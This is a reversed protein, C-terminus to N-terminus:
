SASHLWPPRQWASRLSILRHTVGSSRPQVALWGGLLPAFLPSHESLDKMVVSPPICDGPWILRSNNEGEGWHQSKFWCARSGPFCQMSDSPARPHLWLSGCTCQLELNRPGSWSLSCCMLLHAQCSRLHFVLLLRAKQDSKGSAPRCAMIGGTSRRNLLRASEPTALAFLSSKSDWPRWGPSFIWSWSKTAQRFKLWGPRCDMECGRSVTWQVESPRPLPTLCLLNRKFLFCRRTNVKQKQEVRACWFLM